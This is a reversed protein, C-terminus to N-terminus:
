SEYHGAVCRRIRRERESMQKGVHEALEEALKEALKLKVRREIFEKIVAELRGTRIAVKVEGEGEFKALFTSDDGYWVILITPTYQM